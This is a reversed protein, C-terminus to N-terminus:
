QKYKDELFINMLELHHMISLKKITGLGPYKGTHYCGTLEKLGKTLFIKEKETWKVLKSVAEEFKRAPDKIDENSDSVFHKIWLSQNDDFYVIHIAVALPAFGAENFDKGVVTYDGFGEYGEDDFYLHDESFFEDIDYYDVNRELKNYRDEFVVKKGQVSRRFTRDDPILSYLPKFKGFVNLYPNLCERKKSIIIVKDLNIKESDVREKLTAANKQNIIYANIVNDKKIEQLLNVKKKEESDTKKLETLFDGVTPNKVVAIAKENKSFASLTNSLTTTVKIPEIIPIIYKGILNEEVLEKLAILEFQRARLYPFYM